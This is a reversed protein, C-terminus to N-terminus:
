QRCLACLSTNKLALGGALGGVSSLKNGWKNDEIKIIQAELFKEVDAEIQSCPPLIPLARFLPLNSPGPSFLSM